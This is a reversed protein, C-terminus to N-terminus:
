YKYAMWDSSSTNVAASGCVASICNRNETAGPTLAFQQAEAAPTQDRKVTGGQDRFGEDVASPDSALDSMKNTRRDLRKEPLRQVRVGDTSVRLCMFDALIQM